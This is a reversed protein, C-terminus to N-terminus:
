SLHACHKAGAEAPKQLNRRETGDWPKADIGKNISVARGDTLGSAYGNMNGEYKSQRTKMKGYREEVAKAKAVVLEYLPKGPKADAETKAAAIEENMMEIIGNAVGATYARLSAVGQLKYTHSSKFDERLGRIVGQLYKLMYVALAVDPKFGMFSICAEKGKPTTVISAAAKTDTLNAIAVALAGAWRPVRLLPEKWEALTPVVADEGMETGAKLKVMIVDAEEVQYKHMIKAAMAAAAAAEQTNARTDRAIALLKEIRRMVSELNDSM